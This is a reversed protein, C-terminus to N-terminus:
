CILTVRLNVSPLVTREPDSRHAFKPCSESLLGRFGTDLELMFHTLSSSDKVSSQIAEVINDFLEPRRSPSLSEATSSLPATCTNGPIM